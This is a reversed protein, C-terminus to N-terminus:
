INVPIRFSLMDVGGIFNTTAMFNPRNVLDMNVLIDIFFINMIDCRLFKSSFRHSNLGGLELLDM